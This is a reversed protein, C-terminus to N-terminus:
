LSARQTLYFPVEIHKRSNELITHAAIKGMQYFDTSITTIGNLIIKKIPTENYSIVGIDEGVKLKLSIIQEILTILDDEMLNIFAEGPRITQQKIDNVVEHSFAYHQCFSHFGAIIEKPFYSRDPFVLKLTHYKSLPEIAKELAGYIDKEFNEYIAAFEGDIGDIKKDLLVLKDKPIHNIIEAADGEGDLFHPIIVYHTYGDSKGTLLKKFLSLDNNYIYFDISAKGDLAEAFADYIIKKHGSLKNFLLFIRLKQQISANIIYYGKGPVSALVGLNKLHKYSKEITDRSMELECSFETISPLMDDKLIKGASIANLISNSLQLYKPTASYEDIHIYTYLGAPKM